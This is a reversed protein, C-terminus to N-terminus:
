RQRGAVLTNSMMDPADELDDDDAGSGDKRRRAVDEFWESLLDDLPWMWEPPMEADFLNEQWRLISLAHSVAM